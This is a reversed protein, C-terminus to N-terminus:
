VLENLSDITYDPVIKGELGREEALALGIDRRIWITRMGLAQAPAIDYELDDGVMAVESPKLHQEGLIHLFFQPDPKLYGISDSLYIHHFFQQFGTAEMYGLILSPQNAGILLRYKGHLRELMPRTDDHWRWAHGIKLAGGIDFIITSIGDLM